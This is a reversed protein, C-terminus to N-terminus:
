VIPFESRAVSGPLSTYRLDPVDYVVETDASPAALSHLQNYVVPQGRQSMQICASGETHDVFLFASFLSNNIDKGLVLLLEGKTWGRRSSASGPRLLTCGM